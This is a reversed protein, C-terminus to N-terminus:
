NSRLKSDPDGHPQTKDAVREDIRRLLAAFRDPVGQGVVDDYMSRLQRGIWEQGRRDVTPAAASSVQARRRRPTPVPGDRENM